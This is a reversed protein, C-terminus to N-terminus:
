KELDEQRYAIVSSIQVTNRKIIQKRDEPNTIYMKIDDATIRGKYKLDKFGPNDRLASNIASIITVLAKPYNKLRDLAGPRLYDINAVISFRIRHNTRLSLDTTGVIDLKKDIVIAGSASLSNGRYLDVQLISDYPRTMFPYESNKIFDLIDEQIDIDGLDELNLLSRTDATTINCLASFISVTGSPISTPTFEDYSPLVIGAQSDSYMGAQDQIEFYKFANFSESNSEPHNDLNYSSLEPRFTPALIQNHVMIPYKMNCAIAKEYRFTYSFTGIWSSSDEDDEIKEPAAAFSFQGIIRKQTEAIALQTFTAGQNSIETLRVTSKNQFYLKFDEGYGAQVERLRHIERTIELLREPIVYHYDVAHLNIDRGASTRMKIDEKWRLAVSKSRAKYRFNITVNNSSYVPKIYAGIEIDHFIPNHETQFVATSLVSSPDFEEDVEIFVKDNNPFLTKEAATQDITSGPQAIQGADDPYLIATTQPIKTIDMIQRVVSLIVPRLISQKTEAIVISINPM